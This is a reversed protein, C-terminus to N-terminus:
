SVLAPAASAPGADLPVLQLGLRKASRALNRRLRAAFQEEYAALPQGHYPQRQKLMAYVIRALKHATATMAKPAGRKARIRRYFAGLAKQSRAVAQAALRLATAARSGTKQTRSHLRKGGSSETHPALALWSTFPKVSSWRSMDWGIEAILTQATLADIGDIATLDV